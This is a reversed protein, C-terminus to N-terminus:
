ALLLSSKPTPGRCPRGCGPLYLVRSGLGCPLHGGETAAAGRLAQGLKTHLYPRKNRPVERSKNKPFFHQTCGSLPLGLATNEYSIVPPGPFCGRQPQRAVHARSTVNTRVM